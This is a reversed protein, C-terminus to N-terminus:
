QSSPNTRAIERLFWLSVWVLTRTLVQLLHQKLADLQRVSMIWRLPHRTKDGPYRTGGGRGCFRGIWSGIVGGGRIIGWKTGSGHSSYHAVPEGIDTGRVSKQYWTEKLQVNGVERNVKNFFKTIYYINKWLTDYSILKKSQVTIHVHRTLRLWCVNVRLILVTLIDYCYFFYVNNCVNNCVAM